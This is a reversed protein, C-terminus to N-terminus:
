LRPTWSPAVPMAFRKPRNPTRAQTTSMPQWGVATDGGGELESVVAREVGLKVDDGDMAGGIM